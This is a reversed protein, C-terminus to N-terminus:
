PGSNLMATGEEEDSYDDEFDNLNFNGWKLLEGDVLDEEGESEIM